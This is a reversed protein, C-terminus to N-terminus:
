LLFPTPLTSFSHCEHKLPHPAVKERVFINKYEEGGKRLPLEYKM